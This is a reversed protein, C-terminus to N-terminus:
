MLDSVFSILQIKRKTAMVSPLVILRAPVVDDCVDLKLLGADQVVNSGQVGVQSGNVCPLISLHPATQTYSLHPPHPLKANIPIM